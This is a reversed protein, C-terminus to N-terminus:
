LCPLGQRKYVDLHTYSVPIGYEECVQRIEANDTAVYVADIKESEMVRRWVWWLMPRGCIDALPKGRLRSSEYRAPIMAVTRM